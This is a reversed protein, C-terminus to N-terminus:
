ILPHSLAMTGGKSPFVSKRLTIDTKNWVQIYMKVLHYVHLDLINPYYSM